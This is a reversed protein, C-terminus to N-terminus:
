KQINTRCMIRIIAMSIRQWLLEAPSKIAPTAVFDAKYSDDCLVCSYLNYGDTDETYNVYKSSYTHTVTLKYKATVSGIELQADNVGCTM